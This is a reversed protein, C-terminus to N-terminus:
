RDLFNRATEMKIHFAQAAVGQEWNHRQMALLARKLRDTM